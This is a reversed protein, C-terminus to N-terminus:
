RIKSIDRQFTQQFELFSLGHNRFKRVAPKIEEEKLRSRRILGETVIEELTEREGLKKFAAKSPGRCGWCPLGSAPCSAACGGKTAFGMCPVGISAFCRDLSKAQSANMTEKPPKFGKRPCEACVNPTMKSPPQEGRLERIVQLLLNPQPPCGPLYADVRVFDDIGAARRFLSLDREQYTRKDVGTRGSLYYAFPDSAEGYSAEILEELEYRNALSPIGGSAACTGMAVLHRSKERAELLMDLDAKARVTGDVFVVDARKFAQGDMLMPCYVIEATGRLGALIEQDELWLAACGGCTSLSVVAMRLVDAKKFLPALRLSPTEASKRESLDRERNRLRVVLSQVMHLAAAPETQVKKIFDSKAIPLLRVRTKAEAAATRSNGNLLAMEGFFDGPGFTVVSCREDGEAQIIEVWGEKVLYMCDGPDGERFLTQGAELSIIDEPVDWLFAPEDLEIEEAQSREKELTPPADPEAEEGNRAEYSDSELQGSKELERLRKTTRLIKATLARLIHLAVGPDQRLRKELSNRTFPLLRTRGIARASASRPQGDFLAMEGLLDGKELIGLFTESRGESKFIEVAGSQIIFMKDGLDGQRFIVDGKEYLSGFIENGWGM